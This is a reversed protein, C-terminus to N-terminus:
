CSLLFTLDICDHVWSNCLYKDLFLFLFLTVFFLELTNLFCYLVCAFLLIKHLLFCYSYFLTVGLFEWCIFHSATVKILM